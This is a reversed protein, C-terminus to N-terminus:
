EANSGNSQAPIIRGTAPDYDPLRVPPVPAALRNFFELLDASPAPAVAITPAPAVPGMQFIYQKLRLIEADREAITADRLVVQRQIEALDARIEFLQRYQELADNERVKTVGEIIRKIDDENLRPTPQEGRAM